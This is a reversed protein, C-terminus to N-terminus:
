LAKSVKRLTLSILVRSSLSRSQVVMRDVRLAWRVTMGLSAMPIRSDLSSISGLSRSLNMFVM